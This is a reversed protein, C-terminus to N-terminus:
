TLKFYVIYSEILNEEDNFWKQRQAIIPIYENCWVRYWLEYVEKIKHMLDMPRNPVDFLGALSRDSATNLKILDPRLVSLFLFIILRM